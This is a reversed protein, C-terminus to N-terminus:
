PERGLLTVLPCDHAHSTTGLEPPWWTAGCGICTQGEAAGAHVAIFARLREVEDLLDCLDTAIESKGEALRERIATLDLETM